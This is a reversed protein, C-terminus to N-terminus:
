RCQVWEQRLTDCKAIVPEAEPCDAISPKGQCTAYLEAFCRAEVEALGESSCPAVAPSCAFLALPVFRSLFRLVRKKM